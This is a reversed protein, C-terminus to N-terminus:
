SFVPTSLSSSFADYSADPPPCSPSRLHVVSSTDNPIVSMLVPTVLAIGPYAQRTGIGAGAPQREHAAPPPRRSPSCRAVSITLHLTGIRLGGASRSTPAGPYVPM